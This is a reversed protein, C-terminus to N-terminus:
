GEWLVFAWADTPDQISLLVGAKGGHEAAWRVELLDRVDGPRWWGQVPEITSSRVFGRGPKHPRPIAQVFGEVGARGFHVRAWLTRGRVGVVLQSGVLRAKPPFSLGTLLGIEGLEPSAIELAGVRLDELARLAFLQACLLVVLGALLLGLRTKNAVLAYTDM